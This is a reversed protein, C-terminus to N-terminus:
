QLKLIFCLDLFNKNLAISYDGIMEQHIISTSEYMTSIKLRHLHLFYM